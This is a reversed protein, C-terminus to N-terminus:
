PLYEWYQQRQKANDLLSDSPLYAAPASYTRAHGNQQIIAPVSVIRARARRGTATEAIVQDVGAVFSEYSYTGSEIVDRYARETLQEIYDLDELKAFVEEINSLDKKLLIFHAGPKVVGSYEGEFLVLAVRLRIAEFIKPSIQNMQVPGERGQLHKARFEEYSSASEKQALRCLAGDRDFVNSGSETGLTARASALFEYWGDGYIRSQNEVEIDVTLGRALAHERVKLGIWYKEQGLDGYHHPLQRGRYGIVNSRENLPKRFRDIAPNEPVYGTLTPVFRMWPFRTKPYVEDLHHMPVCTFMVDFRLRELWGHAIDLADYEDQIFLIKLGDYAELAEAIDTLVHEAISIRVSYHVIVVDFPSFDPRENQLPFPYQITAPLYFVNHLSYKSFAELHERVTSVHVSGDDYLVLVNLKKQVSAQREVVDALATQLQGFRTNYSVSNAACRRRELWQPNWRTAATALIKQVFEDSTRATQFLDPERGLESIPITVVPLGSAVYEYAKLPLSLEMLPIQRFPILGVTARAQLKAIQEPPLQGFARVNPRSCLANWELRPANASNGCIWLKWDPLKDAIKTLLAYDIRVNVGGQYILIKNWFPPPESPLAAQWIDPDCGNRLTVVPGEFGGHKKVNRGVTETVAVTLDVRGLLSKFLDVTAEDSNSMGEHISLYDETAHYVHTKGPFREIFDIFKPNYIWYLPRRFGRQDIQSKLRGSQEPGYAGGMHLIEIDHGPVRDSSQGDGPAATEQVFLVPLYKAFRVAYHYRNSRPETRWDSWTLMVVVDFDNKLCDRGGV